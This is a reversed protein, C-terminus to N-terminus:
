PIYVRAMQSDYVGDGTLTFTSPDTFNEVYIKTGVIGREQKGCNIMINTLIDVTNTDVGTGGSSGGNEELENVRDEILKLDKELALKELKITM